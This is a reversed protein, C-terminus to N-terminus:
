TYGLGGPIARTKSWVDQMIKAGTDNDSAFIVHYLPHHGSYLPGFAVVHRYRLSRLRNCYLDVFRLRRQRPSEQLAVSQNLASQWYTGGFMATFSSALAPHTLWRAIFMDYPYLILLEMKAGGLRHRALAEITSWQLQAGTPDLFALSPARRPLLPLVDRPIVVNCDGQFVTVGPTSALSNGLHAALHRDMEVFFCQTFPPTVELARRASGEVHMGNEILVCDGCGAFADLYYRQGARTTARAYAKLYAELHELKIATWRRIPKPIRSKPNRM